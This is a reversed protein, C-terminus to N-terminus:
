ALWEADVDEQGQQQDGAADDAGLEAGAEGAAELGLLGPGQQREQHQQDAALEGLVEHHRRAVQEREAESSWVGADVCVRPAAM